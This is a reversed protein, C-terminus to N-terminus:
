LKLRERLSEYNLRYKEAISMAYALGDAPGRVIKFTRLSPNEPVVKSIMSVNSKSFSALEDIFTVWICILDLETIRQMIKRSLFIQDQLTTSTFIENLIIISEDGAEELIKHIRILDDQLKGRLNQIKEEKEFHTFLKNFLFLQSKEGAVPCGLSALYHLQGVMRAFTTKGGQNPGSVIITREKGRLHFDNTVVGSKENILKYALALDYGEINFIEKTEKTVVPYCFKLGKKKLNRTYDLYAVYFQIERDFKIITNDLFNRNINYFSELRSFIGPFLNAVGDLIQAEVHNMDMSASAYEVMYNKVQDHKFKSFASEIERNYDTESGFSRVQVRLDRYHVCYRISSLGTIITKTESVLLRYSESNIYSKLYERFSNLGASKIDERLLGDGLEEITKCYIEVVELFWRERHYNYYLKAVRSLLRRIEKMKASFESIREMVSEKELDRMIEQRYLINSINKLPYYFFPKLNYEEKGTTVSEIIQDLNLDAFCDPESVAADNFLEESRQFLISLFMM